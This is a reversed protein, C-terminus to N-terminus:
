IAMAATMSKGFEQLSQAIKTETTKSPRSTGNIYHSIQSKNIGTIKSLGVLSFVTAYYQLFSVFDTKFEFEVEEFHKNQQEFHKKMSKYNIMFDEKAENETEGTGIVGYNLTDCDMYVSYRGDRAREIITKVKKM